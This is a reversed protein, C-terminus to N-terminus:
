LYKTVNIDCSKLNRVHKLFPSWADEEIDKLLPCTKWLSAAKAGERLM